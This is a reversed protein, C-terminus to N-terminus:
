DDPMGLHWSATMQFYDGTNQNDLRGRGWVRAEKNIVTIFSNSGSGGMTPIYLTYNPAFVELPLYGFAPESPQSSPFNGSVEISVQNLTAAVSGHYHTLLTDGTMGMRISRSLSGGSLLTVFAKAYNWTLNDGPHIGSWESKRQDMNIYLSAPDIIAGAFLAGRCISDLTTWYDNALRGWHWLPFVVVKVGPHLEKIRQILRQTDGSVDRGRDNLGGIIGVIRLNKVNGSAMAQDFQGSFNPGIRGPVFYGANDACYNHAKWKQSGDTNMREVILDGMPRGYPGGERCGTGYSDGIFVIDNDRPLFNVNLAEFAKQVDDRIKVQENGLLVNRADIENYKGDLYNKHQEAQNDLYNKHQEAKNNLDDTFDRESQELDAKAKNVANTMDNKYKDVISNVLVQFAGFDARIGPIDVEDLQRRVENPDLKDLEKTWQETIKKFNNNIEVWKAALENDTRILTPIIEDRLKLHIANLIDLFTVGDRYTFPVTNTVQNYNLYDFPLRNRM